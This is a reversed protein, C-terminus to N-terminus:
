LKQGEVIYGFAFDARPQWRHLVYCIGMILPRLPWSLWRLPGLLMTLGRITEQGWLLWFGGNPTCRCLLGAAACYYTYFDQSFGAYYHQPAAHAGSVQPATLLFRGGPKLVRGIEAIVQAPNPVHELVETCLVADIRADAIPLAATDSQISAKTMMKQWHRDTAIYRYSKFLGAYQQPGAGLDVVIIDKAPKESWGISKAWEAVTKRIM